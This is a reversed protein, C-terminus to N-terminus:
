VSKLAPEKKFMNELYGHVKEREELEVKEVIDNIFQEEDVYHFSKLTNNVMDRFDTKFVSDLYEKM